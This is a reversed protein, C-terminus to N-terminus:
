LSGAVGSLTRSAKFAMYSLGPSGHTRRVSPRVGGPISSREHFSFLFDKLGM